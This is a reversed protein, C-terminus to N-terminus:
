LFFNSMRMELFSYLFFVSLPHGHAILRVNNGMEWQLVVGGRQEQTEQELHDQVIISYWGNCVLPNFVPKTVKIQNKSCQWHYNKRMTNWCHFTLYKLLSLNFSNQHVIQNCHRLKNKQLTSSRTPGRCSAAWTRVRQSKRTKSNEFLAPPCCTVFYTSVIFAMM